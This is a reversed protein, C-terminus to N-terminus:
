KRGRACVVVFRLPLLSGVERFGAAPLHLPKIRM